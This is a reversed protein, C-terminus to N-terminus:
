EVVEFSEELNWTQKNVTDIVKLAITYDGPPFTQLPIASGIAYHREVGKLPQAQAATLPARMRKAGSIEIGVQVKPSGAEDLGPNRLELFYWLEENQRFVRDGKPVVKIGGFAYPDTPLQAESLAFINNSLILQSVGTADKEIGTLSLDTSAMTVPEDGVALGFVAKYEGPELQLSKDVYVDTKSGAVTVPEEYVVVVDGDADEVVGFFSMSAEPAVADNAPMYLQVPVFYDGDATIYQGYSLYVNQYPSTEAARFAAVADALGQSTFTTKIESAPITTTEAVAPAPTDFTPVETLKPQFVFYERAQDMIGTIDTRSSRGLRWNNMGYEDTFVVELEQDRLFPPTGPRSITFLRCRTEDLSQMCKALSEENYTPPEYIWVETPTENQRTPSMATGPTEIGPMPAAVNRRLRTPAGLLIFAQGRATTAGRDRGEGFTADAYEVRSEFLQKLENAPTGPTPDRRAWFLAVFEEAADDNRVKKWARKEADTLLVGAPSEAWDEYESLQAMATGTGIALVVAAAAVVKRMTM